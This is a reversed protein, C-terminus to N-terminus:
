ILKELDAIHKEAESITTELAAIKKEKEEIRLRHNAITQRLKEIEKKEGDIAISANLKEIQRTYDKQIKKLKGIEGLIEKDAETLISSFYKKENGGAARGSFGVCLDKLDGKISELQRYLTQARRSPGGGGSLSEKIRGNERKLERLEAKLSEMSDRLTRIRGTNESAEVPSATEAGSTFFDEGAGEYIKELDRRSKALMTRNMVTQASKGIWAFVNGSETNGLDGLKEELDRLKSGLEDARAKYVAAFAPPSSDDLLLKGLEAYLASLVGQGEGLAQEKENILTDNAKLAATEEEISKLAQECDALDKCLRFYATVDNDTGTNGARGFLSLGLDELYRNMINQSELRRTELEAINKKREDM